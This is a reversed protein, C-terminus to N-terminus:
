MTVQTHILVAGMFLFVLYLMWIIYLRQHTVEWERLLFQTGYVTLAVIGAVVLPIIIRGSSLLRACVYFVGLPYVVYADVPTGPPGAEVMSFILGPVFSATVLVFTLLHNKSGYRWSDISEFFHTCIPLSIYYIVPIIFLFWLFDQKNCDHVSYMLLSDFEYHFGKKLCYYGPVRYSTSFCDIGEEQCVTYQMSILPITLICYILLLITVTVRPISPELSERFDM